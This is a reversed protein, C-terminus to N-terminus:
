QFIHFSRLKKVVGGGGGGWFFFFFFFFFATNKCVITTSYKKNFLLTSLNSIRPGSIKDKNMDCFIRSFRVQFGTFPDYALLAHRNAVYHPM